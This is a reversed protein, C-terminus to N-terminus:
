RTITRSLSESPQDQSLKRIKIQTWERSSTKLVTVLFISQIGAPCKNDVSHIVPIM